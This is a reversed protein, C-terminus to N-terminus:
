GSKRVRANPRGESAVTIIAVIEDHRPADGVLLTMTDYEAFSWPDDKHGLPVDIQSGIQGVKINSPIVAAGGGIAARMPKGYYRHLMAAAHEAEGSSGVIAAKGYSHVPEDLTTVLEPMLAESLQVGIATLRTFDDKEELWENKMVAIAAARVIPRECETGAERYIVERIFQVKRILPRLEHGEFPDKTVTKSTM